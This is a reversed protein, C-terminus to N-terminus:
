VLSDLYSKMKRKVEPTPKNFVFITALDDAFLVSHRPIRGVQNSLPIGNIFVLFLIPGLVSGQQVGCEIRKAGSLHGNINVKFSRDSLLNKFFRILYNPVGYDILKM